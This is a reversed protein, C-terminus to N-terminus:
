QVIADMALAQLGFERRFREDLQKAIIYEAVEGPVLERWGGGQAIARRVM